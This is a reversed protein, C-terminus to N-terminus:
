TTETRVFEAIELLRAARKYHMAKIHDSKGYAKARLAMGKARLASFIMDVDCEDLCLITGGSSTLKM